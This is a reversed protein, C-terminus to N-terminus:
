NGEKKPVRSTPAPERKRAAAQSTASAERAGPPTWLIVEKKEYDYDDARCIRAVRAQQLAVEESLGAAKYAGLVAAWTPSMGLIKEAKVPGVGPCGSYGDTQDGTLTQFFHAADAQAETITVISGEWDGSDRAKQYNVLKGPITLFDKDIAVIIREGKVLHPHTSLIGLVDDGELWPRQFVEYEDHCFERLAGYVIPKRVKQRKNKYTPLVQPRWRKEDSLAIIVRDGALGETIEELSARLKGIAQELNAHLTWLWENWQCEYESSAAAEFVLTDGDILLTRM